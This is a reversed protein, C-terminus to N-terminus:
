KKKLERWIEPSKILLKLYHKVCHYLLADAYMHLLHCTFCLIPNISEGTCVYIHNTLFPVFKVRVYPVLDYVQTVWYVVDDVTWLPVQQSLKHPIKEGIIKLAEAALKSAM